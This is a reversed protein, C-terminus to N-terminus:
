FSEIFGELMLGHWRLATDGNQRNEFRCLRPSGARDKKGGVMAKDLSASKLDDFDKLAEEGSGIGYLRQKLISLGRHQGKAKERTDM